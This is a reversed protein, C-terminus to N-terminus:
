DGKINMQKVEVGFFNRETEERTPVGTEDQYDYIKQMAIDRDELVKKMREKSDFEQEGKKRKGLSSRLVNAKENLEM